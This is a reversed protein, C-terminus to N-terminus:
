RAETRTRMGTFLRVVLLLIVAGIFAVILSGLNFGTFGGTFAFVTPLLNSLVLGGLFAGIIGVIIDGLLGMGTGRVVLSALFGAAGGVLVWILADVISMHLNLMSFDSEQDELTMRLSENIESSSTRACRM